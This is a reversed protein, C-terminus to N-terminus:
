IIEYHTAPFITCTYFFIYKFVIFWIFTKIYYKELFHENLDNRFSANWFFVSKFWSKEEDAYDKFRKQDLM